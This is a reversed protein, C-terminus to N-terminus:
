TCFSTESIKIGLHFVIMRDCSNSSKTGPKSKPIKSLFFLANNAVRLCFYIKQNQHNAKFKM